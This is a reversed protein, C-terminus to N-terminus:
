TQELLATSTDADMVIHNAVRLSPQVLLPRLAEVKLKGCFGCPAAILVVHKGPAQAMKVLDDLEFITVARVGTNVTIPKTASYPRWMVDGVWGAKELNRRGRAPAMEMFSGLLSHPDAQSGLSTVVIDIDKAQEFGERVGRLKKIEEYHEWRVVAESFLGVPKIQVGAESFYSFFAVPATTPHFVDFGSTLAHLALSPIDPEARLLEGLHRALLMMTHGGGMGLHVLTKGSSLERILSLVLRAGAADAYEIAMPGRVNLVTIGAGVQPYVLGLRHGLAMEPPPCLQLYGRRMGESVLPYVEERTCRFGQSDLWKAIDTAGKRDLFRECVNFIIDDPMHTWEGRRRSRRKRAM